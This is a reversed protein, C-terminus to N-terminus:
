YIDETISFIRKQCSLEAVPDVKEHAVVELKDDALGALVALAVWAGAVAVAVAVALVVEGGGAL